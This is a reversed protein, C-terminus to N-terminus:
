SMTEQATRLSALSKCRFISVVAAFDRMLAVMSPWYVVGSCRAMGVCCSSSMALTAQSSTLPPFPRNRSM